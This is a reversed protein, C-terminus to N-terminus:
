KPVAIVLPAKAPRTEILGEERLLALARQITHTSVGGWDAIMQRNTPFLGGVNLEGARIQARYYEAIQEHAALIRRDDPVTVSATM